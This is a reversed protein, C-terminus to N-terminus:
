RLVKRYLKKVVIKIIMIKVIMIMDYVDLLQYKNIQFFKREFYMFFLFM